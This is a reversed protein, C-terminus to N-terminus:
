GTLKEITQELQAIRDELSQVREVLEKWESSAPASSKPSAPSLDEADDEDVYNDLAEKERPTLCLHGWLVGRKRGEASLRKVFGRDALSQLVARLEELSALPTMRSARARLDGETQPGRLFLEALVSLPARDFGWADRLNHKWRETRGTAAFVQFVLGMPKLDILAEDVEHAQYNSVPERNSKQNCATITANSTLPYADPTTIAKEVLVGLIRRQIPTLPPPPAQSSNPSDVV